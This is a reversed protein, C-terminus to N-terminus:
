QGRYALVIEPLVAQNGIYRNEKSYIMLSRAKIKRRREPSLKKLYDAHKIMEM